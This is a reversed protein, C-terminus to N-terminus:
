KRTKAGFAELVPGVIEKLVVQAHNETTGILVTQANTLVHISAAVAEMMLVITIQHALHVFVGGRVAVM